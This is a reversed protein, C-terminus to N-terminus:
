IIKEVIGDIKTAYFFTSLMKSIGFSHTKPNLPKM